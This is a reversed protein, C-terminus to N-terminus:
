DRVCFIYGDAFVTCSAYKFSLFSVFCLICSLASPFVQLENLYNIGRVDDWAVEFVIFGYLTRRLEIILLMSKKLNKVDLLAKKQSLAAVNVLTTWRKSNKPKSIEPSSTNSTDKSDFKKEGDKRERRSRTNAFPSLRSQLTDM